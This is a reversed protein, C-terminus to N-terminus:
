PLPGPRSAATQARGRELAGGLKAGVLAIVAARNQRFPEHNAGIKVTDRRRALELLHQLLPGSLKGRRHGRQLDHHGRGEGSWERCLGVEADAQRHALIRPQVVQGQRVALAGAEPDRITGDV